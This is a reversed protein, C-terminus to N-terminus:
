SNKPQNQRKKGVGPLRKKIQRLLSKGLSGKSPEVDVTKNGARKSTSKENKNLDRSAVAFVNIVEDWLIEPPMVPCAYIENRLRIIKMARRMVNEMEGGPVRERTKVWAEAICRALRPNGSVSSREFIQVMADETLQGVLQWREDSETGRDLVVGRTWLRQLANRVGGIYRDRSFGEFRWGVIDPLFIFSLCAWVDDRYVEGTNLASHCALFKTAEFDFKSKASSSNKDPFGFERALSRLKAALDLATEPSSHGGTPSYTIRDKFQDLENLNLVPMPPKTKFEEILNSAHILPLRPLLIVNSM